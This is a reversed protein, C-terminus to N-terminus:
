PVRLRLVEGQGVLTGKNALYITGDRAVAVGTPTVLGARALETRSGDREVRILAGTPDGSLLGNAFIELVLLRGKRDFAIDAITTFGDAAVTPAQGPVVRWVKAGGVPFPFGTLQGVYFAGDPGAAVTTPVFQMPLDPGGFPNPAPVTPFVALTSIRGHRDLRLLDNGGADTVVAGDRYPLLGYPNSDPGSDPQDGDPNHAAEYGALDAFARAGAPGIGVAQGILAGAPGLQARRAPDTGLGITVLPGAATLAIDHPGLVESQNTTGLSPLGTVIREQHRGRIATVAGTAGLCFTQDQGGVICPGQGGRGAEAVLVVGDPTVALGRPNDLGTAVVTLGEAGPKSAAATAAAPAAAIVLGAVAVVASASRLTLRVM